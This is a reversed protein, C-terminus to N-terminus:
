VGQKECLSLRPAETQRQTGRGNSLLDRQNGGEDKHRASLHHPLVTRGSSGSYATRLLSEQAGM